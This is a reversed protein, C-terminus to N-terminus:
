GGADVLTYGSGVVLTSADATVPHAGTRGGGGVLPSVGGVFFSRGALDVSCNVSARFSTISSSSVGSGVM